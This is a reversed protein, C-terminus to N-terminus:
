DDDNQNDNYYIFSYQNSDDSSNILADYPEYDYDNDRYRYGPNTKLDWEETTNEVKENTVSAQIPIQQEPSFIRKLMDNTTKKKFNEWKQLDSAAQQRHTYLDAEYKSSRILHEPRFWEYYTGPSLKALGNPFDVEICILVEGDRDPDDAVQIISGIRGAYQDYTDRSNNWTDWKLDPTPTIQVWDGINFM